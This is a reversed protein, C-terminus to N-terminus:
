KLAAYDQIGLRGLRVEVLAERAGPPPPPLLTGSVMEGDMTMSAVGACVHEPNSVRITYRVGRFLRTVSYGDWRSPVCPDIRLGDLCPRVGLIHQTGILYMWAVTGSFWSMDGEGARPDPDTLSTSSFAYPENLYVDEGRERAAVNPLIQRYYEYAIDGRGLLTEALVAWAHAHHFIGGNERIGPGNGSLPDHPEPIGTFPPHLLKLGRPTSLKERAQDMGQVARSPPRASGSIVAWSQTNLFIKGEARRRSGLPPQDASFIYRAYWEGDWIGPRNLAEIMEELTADCFALAPAHGLRAAMERLLRCAYALNQALMVSEEQGDERFMYLSDNWDVGLILPLNNKGRRSAIHILGQLLHEVVAADAGQYYPINKELFAFDGTEAVYAHVTYVPWVGNDSRIAHADGPRMSAPDFNSFYEGCPKQFALILELRERALRTDLSVLSMADQSSDRSQIGSKEMGTTMASPSKKRNAAVSCGYPNWVNIMREMDPDPLRAQCVGVYGQWHRQVDRLAADAAAPDRYRRILAGAQDWDPACGLAVTFRRREGPELRLTHQLAGIAFGGGPLQSNTCRGSSVREPADLTGARGLFRNRDCDYGEVPLSSSFFVKLKPHDEFVHYDYAIAGLPEHFTTSTFFRCWHYYELQRLAHLFSFEVFPFVGIEAAADGDNHLEAQWLLVTDQRPVFYTVTASINQRRAEFVTYGLGHRAKWADLQTRAPEFTPTWLTGDPERLYLYFGPRDIPIAHAQNYRTLRGTASERYFATGGGSQSIIAHFEDNALFNLWPMPPFHSTVVYERREDDFHGYPGAATATAASKCSTANM